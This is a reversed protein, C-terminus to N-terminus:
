IKKNLLDQKLSNYEEKTIANTKELNALKELEEVISLSKSDSVNESEVKKDAKKILIDIIKQWKQVEELAYKSVFNITANANLFDIKRVPNEVDNVYLLLQVLKIEQKDKQENKASLGGIVMGATGLLAGGVVMGGIQSLRRTQSIVKGDHKIESGLIEDYSIFEIGKVKKNSNFTKKFEDYSVLAIKDQSENVAIALRKGDTIGVFMNVPIFDKEKLAHVISKKIKEEKSSSFYVILIIVGIVVLLTTM